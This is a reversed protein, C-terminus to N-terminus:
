AFGRIEISRKYSHMGDQVAVKTWLTVNKGKRLNKKRRMACREQKERGIKKMNRKDKMREGIGLCMKWPASNNVHSCNKVRKTIKKKM